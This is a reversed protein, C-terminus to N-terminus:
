YLQIDLTKENKEIVQLQRRWPMKWLLVPPKVKLFFLDASIAILRSLLSIYSLSEAHEHCASSSTGEIFFLVSISFM